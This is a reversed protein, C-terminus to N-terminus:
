GRLLNIGEKIFLISFVLLVLGLVRVINLYATSKLFSRSKDVIIALVIKSGVLLIYFGLLFMLCSSLSASYAKLLLPSGVTIWFLYPHPSLVNTIVGKRLSDPRAESTDVGVGKVTINGYALYGIFSAGLLSILGLIIDSGSLRSLVYISLAIIPIDTLIPAISVMIGQKRNHRLTEAMVLTLLPGPAVGAALGFSAGAVLYPIPELM